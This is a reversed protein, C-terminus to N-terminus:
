LKLSLFRKIIDRKPKLTLFRQSHYTRPESVRNGISNSDNSSPLTRLISTIHSDYVDPHYTKFQKIWKLKDRETMSDDNMVSLLLDQLAKESFADRQIQYEENTVKLCYENNSESPIKQKLAKADALNKDIKIQFCDPLNFITLCEDILFQIFDNSRIEDFNKEKGPFLICRTFIKVIYEKLAVSNKTLLCLEKNEIIKHFMRILLQLYRRNISPLSFLILQLCEYYKQKSKTADMQDSDKLSHIKSKKRLSYFRNFNKNLMYEGSEPPSNFSLKNSIDNKHNQVILSNEDSYIRKASLGKPITSSVVKNNKTAFNSSNGNYNSNNLSQYNNLCHMKSSKTKYQKFFEVLDPFTSSIEDISVIKTVPEKGSFATEYVCNPPLGLEYNLSNYVSKSSIIDNRLNSNSSSSILSVQPKAVIPKNCLQFVDILLQYFKEPIIPEDMNTFYERILKFVDYEFGPYKPLCNGSGSAKPWNVLCKMASLIWHPLDESKDLLQVVGNSNVKTINNYLDFSNIEEPKIYENINPLVSLLNSWITKKYIEAKEKVDLEIQIPNETSCATSLYNEKYDSANLNEKAEMTFQYLENNDRLETDNKSIAIREIINSKHYKRLLNLAQFRTIKNHCFRSHNQLYSKLWTIAESATFCDHFTKM